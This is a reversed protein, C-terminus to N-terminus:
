FPSLLKERRGGCCEPPEPEESGPAVSLCVMPPAHDRPRPGPDVRPPPEHFVPPEAVTTSEPTPEAPKDPPAKPDRTTLPESCGLSAALAAAILMDRRARIAAGDSM